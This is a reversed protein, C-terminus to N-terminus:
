GWRKGSAIPDGRMAPRVLHITATSTRFAFYGRVVAGRDLAGAIREAGAAVATMTRPRAVATEGRVAQCFGM